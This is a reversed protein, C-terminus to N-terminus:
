ASGNPSMMCVVFPLKMRRDLCYAFVEMLTTKLLEDAQM